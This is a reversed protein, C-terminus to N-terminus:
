SLLSIISLIYLALVLNPSQALYTSVPQQDEFTESCVLDDAPPIQLDGRRVMDHIVEDQVIVDDETQVIIDDGTLEFLGHDKNQHFLFEEETAFRQGCLDCDEAAMMLRDGGGGSTMSMPIELFELSMPPM